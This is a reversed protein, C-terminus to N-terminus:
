PELFGQRLQDIEEETLGLGETLYGDISGYGKLIQDRSADIYEDELVYFARINAVDVRDPPIEQRKAVAARLQALREEVEAARCKNSLLYDERVTEWPVGLGWLLIATAAGTRHIGHSCHYVVGRSSRLCRCFRDFPCEYRVIPHQTGRRSDVLRRTCPTRRANPLSATRPGRLFYYPKPIRVRASAYSTGTEDGLRRTASVRIPSRTSRSSTSTSWM